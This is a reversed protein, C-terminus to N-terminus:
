VPETARINFQAILALIGLVALVWGIAQFWGYMSIDVTANMARFMISLLIASAFSTGLNISLNGDKRGSFYSPFFLLFCTVGFGATIIKNATSMFPTIIRMIILILATLETFINPIKKRFIVLLFPSLLFLVGFLKEDIELKLLDLMYISSILDGVLQFFFLFTISFLILESDIKKFLNKNLQM